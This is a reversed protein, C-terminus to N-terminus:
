FPLARDGDGDMPIETYSSPIEFWASDVDDYFAYIFMTEIFSENDNVIAYITNGDFWFRSSSGDDNSYDIYTLSQEDFKGKGEGIKKMSGFYDPTMDSIDAVDTRVFFQEEGGVYYANSGDRIIRIGETFICLRDGDVILSGEMESYEVDVDDSDDNDETISMFDFAYTGSRLVKIFVPEDGKVVPTPTESIVEIDEDDEDDEVLEAAAEEFLNFEGKAVALTVTYGSEDYDIQVIIVKGEDVSQRAVQIGEGEPDHFDEFNTVFIFDDNDILYTFYEYVEMGQGSGKVGFEYAKKKIGNETASSVGVIERTEGFALYVSPVRDNGVKYYDAKEARSASTLGVIVFTAVIAIIAIFIILLVKLVKPMGKKKKKAPQAAYGTGPAAAYGTGPTAYQPQYQPQDASGTQGYPQGQPQGAPQGYPAQSGAARREEAWLRYKMDEREFQASGAGSFRFRPSIWEKGCRDCYLSFSFIQGDSHDKTNKTLSSAM